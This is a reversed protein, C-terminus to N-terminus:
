CNVCIAFGIFLQLSQSIGGRESRSLAASPDIPLMNMCQRILVSQGDRGVLLQDLFANDIAM